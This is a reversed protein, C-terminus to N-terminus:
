LTAKGADLTPRSGAEGADPLPRSGPEFGPRTEIQWGEPGLPYETRARGPSGAAGVGAGLGAGLGAGPIAIIAACLGGYQGGGISAGVLGGIAAGSLGGILAGNGVSAGTPSEGLVTIAQLYEYPVVEITEDDNTLLIGRLAPDFGVLLGESKSAGPVGPRRRLELLTGREIRASATATAPGRKTLVLQPQQWAYLPVRLSRMEVPQVTSACSVPGGSHSLAVLLGSAITAGRLWQERSKHANM